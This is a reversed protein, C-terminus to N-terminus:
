RDAYERRSIKEISDEATRLGEIADSFDDELIMIIRAFRIMYFTTFIAIIGFVISLIIFIM